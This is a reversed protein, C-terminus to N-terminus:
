AMCERQLHSRPIDREEEGEERMCTGGEDWRWRETGEEWREGKKEHEKRDQKAGGGEGKL